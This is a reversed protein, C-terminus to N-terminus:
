QYKFGVPGYTHDSTNVSSPRTGSTNSDLSAPWWDALTHWNNSGTQDAHQYWEAAMARGELCAWNLVAMVLFRNKMAM